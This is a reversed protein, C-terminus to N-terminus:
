MPGGTGAGSGGGTMSHCEAHVGADPHTVIPIGVTGTGVGLV